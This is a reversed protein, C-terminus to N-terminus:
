NIGKDLVTINILKIIFDGRMQWTTPIGLSM